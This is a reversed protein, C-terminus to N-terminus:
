LYGFMIKNDQKFLQGCDIKSENCVEWIDNNLIENDLVQVFKINPCEYNRKFNKQKYTKM